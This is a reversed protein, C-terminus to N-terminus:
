AELAEKLPLDKRPKCNIRIRMIKDQTAPINLRNRLAIVTKNQDSL